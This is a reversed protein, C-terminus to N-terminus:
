RQIAVKSQYVQGHIDKTRLIYTGMPLRSVDLRNIKSQEPKRTIVTAGKLNVLQIDVLDSQSIVSLEGSVPNPYVTMVETGDIAERVIKSYAYTGDLDIMKLRYYVPAGPAIPSNDLFNYAYTTGKGPILGIKVFGNKPNKSKEIEFRDFGTEESTKWSLLIKNENKKAAFSVLKVPMPVTKVNFTCSAAPGCADVTYTVQHVGEGAISPDFVSTASNVGKGAYTGGIDTVTHGSSSPLGSVTLNKAGTLTFAGDIVSITTDGPCSVAPEGDIAIASGFPGSTCGHSTTATAYIGHFGPGAVAPNFLYGSVSDGTIGVGTWTVSIPESPTTSFSKITGFYEPLNPSEDACISILGLVEMKEPAPNVTIIFTCTTTNEGDQYTYTITKAGVGALEPSFMGGSVGPGSYTGGTPTAGTLAFAPENQCVSRDAPCVPVATIVQVNFTCSAAPGCGYDVTYTIQHTGEGAASPNFIATASNVATGTYIGGADTIPQGSSTPLSRVTLNKAGSLTFATAALSTTMDGPCSVASEGDIAIISAHPGSTCGHSTTATAYIRHFGPGATAPTFLYGTASDGTIGVGTWTVSVPESPTTSFSQITGFHEPLDPSEEVCNPIVGLIEMREPAPNVTIVFTCTSTNGGDQYTYTITKAGVGALEPSFISGSVGPGSYTGGAPSAGSLTFPAENACVSRDAPCTTQAQVTCITVLFLLLTAILSQFLHKM